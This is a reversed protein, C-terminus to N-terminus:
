TAPAVPSPLLQIQILVRDSLKLEKSSVRLEAGRERLHQSDNVQSASM